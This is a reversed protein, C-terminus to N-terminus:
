QYIIEISLLVLVVAVLVMLVLKALTRHDAVLV